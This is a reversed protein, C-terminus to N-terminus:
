CVLKRKLYMKAISTRLSNKYRKINQVKFKQFCTVYRLFNYVVFLLRNLQKWNYLSYDITQVQCIFNLQEIFILISSLDLGLFTFKAIENSHSNQTHPPGGRFTFEFFCSFISLLRAIPACSRFTQSKKFNERKIGKLIKKEIIKM